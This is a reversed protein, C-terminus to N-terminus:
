LYCLSNTLREELQKHDAFNVFIGGTKKECLTGSRCSLQPQQDGCHVRAHPHSWPVFRQIYIYIGDDRWACTSVGLTADLHAAKPVVFKKNQMQEFNLPLGVTHTELSHMFAEVGSGRKTSAGVLV